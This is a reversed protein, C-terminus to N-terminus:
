TARRQLLHLMVGVLGFAALHFVYVGIAVGSATFDGRHVFTMILDLGAAAIMLNAMLRFRHWDRERLVWLLGAGFAMFWAAFVRLMLPAIPWPWVPIVLQPRVLAVAGFALVLLGTVLALNKAAPTIAQGTVAWNAGGREYQVYFVIALVPAIIYVTLWYFLGLGPRFKDLHLLTVATLLVGATVLVPVLFRAPEWYGRWTVWAVAAAGGLYLAGFLAASLPPSITWFFLTDTREPFLLLVGGGALANVAVFWFVVKTLLTMPKDAM